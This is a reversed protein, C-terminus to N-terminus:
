LDLKHLTKKEYNKLTNDASVNYCNWQTSSCLVQVSKEYKTKLYITELFSGLIVVGFQETWWSFVTKKREYCSLFYLYHMKIVSCSLFWIGISAVSRSGSVQSCSSSLRQTLQLSFLLRTEISNQFTFHFRNGCYLSFNGICKLINLQLVCM